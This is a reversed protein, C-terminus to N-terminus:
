MTTGLKMREPRAGDGEMDEQSAPGSCPAQASLAPPSGFPARTWKLSEAARRIKEQLREAWLEADRSNGREILAM